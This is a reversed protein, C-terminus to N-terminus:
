GTKMYDVGAQFIKAFVQVEELNNPVYVMTYGLHIWSTGSLRHREGWGKTIVEQADAFSLTVHGSMDTGHIHCIERQAPGALPSLPLSERLFLATGHKELVSTKWETDANALAKFAEQYAAKITEDQPDAANRERQPFVFKKARVRPGERVPLPEKLYSVQAAARQAPTAKDWGTAYKSPNQYVDSTLTDEFAMTKEAAKNSMFGSWSMSTGGQGMAKWQKYEERLGMSADDYSMNSMRRTFTRATNYVTRSKLLGRRSTIFLM